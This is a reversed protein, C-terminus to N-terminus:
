VETVNYDDADLFIHGETPQIQGETPQIQGETPQIQGETPQIQGETPQKLRQSLYTPGQTDNLSMKYKEASIHQQASESESESEDGEDVNYMWDGGASDSSLRQIPVFHNRRPVDAQSGRVKTRSISNVDSQTLAILHGHHKSKEKFVKEFDQPAVGYSVLLKIISKKIKIEEVPPNREDCMSATLMVSEGQKGLHDISANHELLLEVITEYGRFCAWMLATWGMKDDQDVLCGNNLLLQAGDFMGHKSLRILACTGKKTKHNIDAGHNLLLQLLEVNGSKVATFATEGTKFSVHNADAGRSLLLQAPGPSSHMCAYMLSTMDEAQCALNIDAYHNLLCAM